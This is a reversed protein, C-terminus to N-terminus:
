IGAEKCAKNVITVKKKTTSNPRHRLASSALQKALEFNKLEVCVNATEVLMSAKNEMTNDKLNLVYKLLYMCGLTMLKTKVQPNEIERADEVLALGIERVDSSELM